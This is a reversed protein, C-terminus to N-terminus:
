NGPLLAIPRLGLEVASIKLANRFTIRKRAIRGILNLCKDNQLFGTLLPHALLDKENFSPSTKFILFIMADTIINLSQRFAGIYELSRSLPIKILSRIKIRLQGIANIIEDADTSENFKIRNRM